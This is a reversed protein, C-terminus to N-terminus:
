TCMNFITIIKKMDVDVLNIVEATVKAQHFKPDTVLGYVEIKAKQSTM